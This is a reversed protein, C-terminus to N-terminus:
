YHHISVSSQSLTNNLKTVTYASFAFVSNWGCWSSCVVMFLMVLLYCLNIVLTPPLLISAYVSAQSLGCSSGWHCVFGDAQSPGAHVHGSTRSKESHTAAQLMFAESPWSGAAIVGSTGDGADFSEKTRYWLV